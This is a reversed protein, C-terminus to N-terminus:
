WSTSGVWVKYEGQPNTPAAWVAYTQTTFNQDLTAGTKYSEDMSIFNLDLSPGVFSYTNIVGKGAVSRGIALSSSVGAVSGSADGTETNVQNVVESWGVFGM